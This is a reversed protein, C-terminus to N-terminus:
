NLKDADFIFTPVQVPVITTLIETPYFYLAESFQSARIKKYLFIWFYISIM